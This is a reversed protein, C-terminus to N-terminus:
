RSGFLTPACAGSITMPHDISFSDRRANLNNVYYRIRLGDLEAQLQPLCVSLARVASHLRDNDLALGDLQSPTRSQKLRAITTQERAIDRKQHDVQARLSSIQANVQTIQRPAVAARTLGLAAVALAALAIALTLGAFIRLVTLGGKQTAQSVPRRVPGSREAQLRHDIVTKDEARFRLVKGNRQRREISRGCSV